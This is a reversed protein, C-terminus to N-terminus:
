LRIVSRQRRERRSTMRGVNKVRMPHHTRHMRKRLRADAIQAKISWDPTL